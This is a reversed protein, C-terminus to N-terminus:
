NVYSIQYNTVFGGGRDSRAHCQPTRGVKAQVKDAEVGTLSESDWDHRFSFVSHLRRTFRNDHGYFCGKGLKCVARM